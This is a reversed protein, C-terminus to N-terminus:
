FPKEGSLELALRLQSRSPVAAGIGWQLGSSVDVSVPDSPKGRWIVGGTGALEVMKSFEKSVIVDFMADAKGTSAGSDKDGTPLKLTGRIAIAAPQQRWESMLNVKVGVLFDGINDGSWDKRVYPYANVLGGYAANTPQFVAPNEFDRDIRTDVRFSGFIEVRDRIGGAGT